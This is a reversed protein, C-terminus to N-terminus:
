ALSFHCRWGVRGMPRYRIIWKFMQHSYVEMQHALNIYEQEWQFLKWQPEQDEESQARRLIELSLVVEHLHQSHQVEWCSYFLQSKNMQSFPRDKASWWWCFRFWRICIWSSYVLKRAQCICTVLAEIIAFYLANPVLKFYWTELINESASKDFKTCELALKQSFKRESRVTKFFLLM